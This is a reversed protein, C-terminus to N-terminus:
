SGAHQLILGIWIYWVPLAIGGLGIGISLLMISDFVFGAVTFWYAIAAAIGFYSLTKPRRGERLMLMSVVFAWLGVAGFTFWGHYDFTLRTAGIAAQTSADGTVWAVARMRILTLGRFSDLAKVAFGFLAM